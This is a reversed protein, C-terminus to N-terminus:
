AAQTFQLITRQIWELNFQNFLSLYNTGRKARECFLSYVADDKM